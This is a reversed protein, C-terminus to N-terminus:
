QERIAKFESGEKWKPWLSPDNALRDGVQYLLEADQLMGGLDWYDYIEDSPQHYHKANFDENQMTAYEIGETLHEKEGKAYLAPIGIKAFNFHDSRFFSGAGPTPDPTIYRGQAEAFEKAIDELESQGYGVITLDKMPGIASLADININAVTKQPDFLPDSAYYESGLLGQEEATVALFLVSRKPQSEQHVFAHAIELITAIGSANDIAGNFISDGDIPDGVGLHDWHGSYIIVEDANSTGPLLGAVNKSKSFKSANDFSLSVNLILSFSKFDQNVAEYTFDYGAKGALSFIKNASELSVWGEMECRSMNNDDAQLYLNPGTWGHEVVGWPYSAPKTDHVIIMGAAGQRAAEEYKYTWRGYYTMANGNFLKDDQTAYGPDNVLMVVTKGKVDVGEYDNWNYEPAVIGYGVYVLESDAVSVKEVVRTTWAVFQDVYTYIKGSINLAMARDATIEVLPVSQLYSDGNAPILGMTKFRETLYNITNVEGETSPLRGEFEDSALIQIDQRLMKDNIDQYAQEFTKSAEAAQISLSLFATILIIKKLM